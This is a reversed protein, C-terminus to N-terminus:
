VGPGLANWLETMVPIQAEILRGDVVLAPLIRGGLSRLTRAAETGAEAHHVTVSAPNGHRALFDKVSGCASCSKSIYVDMRRHYPQPSGVAIVFLTMQWTLRSGRAHM